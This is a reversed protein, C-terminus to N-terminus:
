RDSLIHNEQIWTLVDRASNELPRTTLGAQQAAAIDMALKGDPGGGAWMPFSQGSQIAEQATLWHLKTGPPGVALVIANLFQEFTFPPKPAALNFVGEITREVASIVFAALDRADIFQMAAQAPGPADVSGGEAVRSVWHAFRDTPDYPGIVYSPRIILHAPHRNRVAQECLVKLPGYTLGDIPLDASASLEISQTDCLAGDENCAPPIDDAYVSITSVFVYHRGRGKLADAVAHIEGPRYACTDIVADWAGDALATLDTSRDGVLHVASELGPTIAHSRHFVDVQHGRQLALKAMALGIFRTGGIFLIRM